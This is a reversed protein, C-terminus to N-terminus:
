GHIPVSVYTPGQYLPSELENEEGTSVRAGRVSTLLAQKWRRNPFSRFPKQLPLSGEDEDEDEDEDAAVKGKKAPAKVEKKAQGISHFNSQFNDHIACGSTM